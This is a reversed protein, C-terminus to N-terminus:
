SALRNAAATLIAALEARTWIEDRAAIRAALKERRIVFADLPVLESQINGHHDTSLLLRSGDLHTVLTTLTTDPQAPVHAAAYLHRPVAPMAQTAFTPSICQALQLAGAETWVTLSPQNRSPTDPSSCNDFRFLRQAEGILQSYYTIELLQWTHERAYNRIATRGLGFCAALRRATMLAQGNFKTVNSTLQSSSTIYDNSNHNQALVHLVRRHFAKALSTRKSSLSMM